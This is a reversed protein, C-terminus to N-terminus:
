QLSRLGVSYMLKSLHLYPVHMDTFINNTCNEVHPDAIIHMISETSICDSFGGVVSVRGGGLPWGKSVNMSM